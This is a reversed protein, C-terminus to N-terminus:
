PPVLEERYSSPFNELIQQVIFAASSFYALSRLYLASFHKKGHPVSDSPRTTCARFRFHPYGGGVVAAM